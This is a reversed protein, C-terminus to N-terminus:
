LQDTGYGAKRSSHWLAAAIHLGTLLLLLLAAAHHLNRPPVDSFATLGTLTGDTIADLSDSLLIMGLGSALLILPLLRLLGHVLKSALFQLRSTVPFVPQPAGKTFWIMVRVLSLLGASLGFTLHIQLVPLAFVPSRTAAYGSGLVALICAAIIWHLTRTVGSGSIRM